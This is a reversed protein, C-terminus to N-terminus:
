QEPIKLLDRPRLSRSLVPQQAAMEQAPRVQLDVKDALRGTPPRPRGVASLLAVDQEVSAKVIAWPRPDADGRSAIGMGRLKTIVGDYLQELRILESASEGEDAVIVVRRRSGNWTKLRTTSPLLTTALPVERTGSRGM